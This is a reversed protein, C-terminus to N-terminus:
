LFLVDAVPLVSDDEALAPLKVDGFGAYPRCSGSSRFGVGCVVAIM